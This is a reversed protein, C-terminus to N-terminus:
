SGVHHEFQIIQDNRGVFGQFPCEPAHSLVMLAHQEDTVLMQMKDAGQGITVHPPSQEILREKDSRHALRHVDIRDGGCGTFFGLLQEM